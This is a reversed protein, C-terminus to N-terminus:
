PASSVVSCVATDRNQGSSCSTSCAVLESPNVFHSLYDLVEPSVPSQRLIVIQLLPSADLIPLYAEIQNYGLPKYGDSVYWLSMPPSKKGVMMM